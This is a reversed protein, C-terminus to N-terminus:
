GRWELASRKKSGASNPEDGFESLSFLKWCCEGTSLELAFNIQPAKRGKRQFILMDAGKCAGTIADDGRFASIFGGEALDAVLDKIFEREKSM